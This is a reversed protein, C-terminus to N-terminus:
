RLETLVTLAHLLLFINLAEFYNKAKKGIIKFRVAM